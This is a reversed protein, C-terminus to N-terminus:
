FRLFYSFLSDSISNIRISNPVSNICYWWKYPIYIMQGAYLIIEVYEAKSFNPYRKLDQNWFDVISVTEGNKKNPYLHKKNKPNFIIIRSEGSLQYILLRFNDVQKLNVINSTQITYFNRISMPILYYDFYKSLELHLENTKSTKILTVLNNIIEHTILDTFISPSKQSVTKEYIDKNPNNVQLIEINSTPTNIYKINLIIFISLVIIITITIKNM